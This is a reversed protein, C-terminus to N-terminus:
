VWSRGRRWAVDKSTAVTERDVAALRATASASYWWRHRTTTCVACALRRIRRQLERTTAVGPLVMELAQIQDGIGAEGGSGAETVLRAAM